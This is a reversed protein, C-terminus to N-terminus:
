RRGSWEESKGGNGEASEAVPRPEGGAGKGGDESEDTRGVSAAWDRVQEGPVSEQREMRKKGKKM